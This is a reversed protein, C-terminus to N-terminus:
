GDLFPLGVGAALLLLVINLFIVLASAVIAAVRVVPGSVFDGMVDRRGTFIVLAIMPVPLVLSLVVQSAVLSDTANYGMGVVIFAPAMTVVRRLWLPTRFRVTEHHLAIVPM